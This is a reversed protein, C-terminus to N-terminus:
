RPASRTGVVVVAAVVVVEAEAATTSRVQGQINYNSSSLSYIFLNYSELLAM